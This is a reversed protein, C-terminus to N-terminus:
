FDPPIRVAILPVRDPPRYPISFHLVGIHDYLRSWAFEALSVAPQRQRRRNGVLQRGQSGLFKSTVQGIGVTAYPVLKPKTSRKIMDVQFNASFTM